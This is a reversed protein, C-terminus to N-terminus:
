APAWAKGARSGDDLRCPARRASREIRHGVHCSRALLPRSLPLHAQIVSADDAFGNVARVLLRHLFRVLSSGAAIRGRKSAFVDDHGRFHSSTAGYILRAFGLAWPLISIPALLARRRIDFHM